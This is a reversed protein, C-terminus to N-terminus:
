APAEEHKDTFSESEVNSGYAPAGDPAAGPPLSFSEVRTAVPSLDEFDESSEAVASSVCSLTTSATTACGPSKPAAPAGSSDSASGGGGGVGGAGGALGAGGGLKRSRAAELAAKLANGSQRMSDHWDGLTEHLTFSIEQLSEAEKSDFLRSLTTQEASMAMEKRKIFRRQMQVCTNRRCVSTRGRAVAGAPPAGLRDDPAEDDGGQGGAKRKVAKLYDVSIKEQRKVAARVASADAEAMIGLATKSDLVLVHSLKISEIIYPSPAPDCSGVLCGPRELIRFRSCEAGPLQVPLSFNSAAKTTHKSSGAVSGRTRSSSANCISRSPMISNGRNNAGRREAVQTAGKSVGGSLRLSGNQLVYVEAVRAFANVIVQKPLFVAPWVNAAMTAMAFPSVVGELGCDALKLEKFMLGYLEVRMSSPLQRIFNQEKKNDGRLREATAQATALARAHPVARLAVPSHTAASGHRGRGGGRLM